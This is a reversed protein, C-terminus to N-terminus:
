SVWPSSYSLVFLSVLSCCFLCNFHLSPSWSACHHWSISFADPHPLYSFGGGIFSFHSHLPVTFILAWLMFSPLTNFPYALCPYSAILPLVYLSLRPLPNHPGFLHSFFHLKMLLVWAQSCTHQSAWLSVTLVTHSHMLHSSYLLKFFAPSLLNFIIYSASNQIKASLGSHLLDSLSCTRISLM